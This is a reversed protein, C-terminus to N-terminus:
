REGTAKDLAALANSAIGIMDDDGQQRGLELSDLFAARASDRQGLTGRVNGVAYYLYADDPEHQLAEEYYALAEGLANAQECLLAAHRALAAVGQPDGSRRAEVLGAALVTRAEEPKSRALALARRLM